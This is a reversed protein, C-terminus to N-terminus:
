DLVIKAKAVIDGVQKMSADVRARFEAAGSLVPPLGLAMFKSKVAPEEIITKSAAEIKAVVDAPMGAPGFLGFWGDLPIEPGGSEVITPLNPHMPDRAAGIVALVRVKGDTSQPLVLPDFMVHIRGAKMEMVGDASGKAPVHVIDTGTLAKFLEGILHGAAGIGSSTYNLRGPEKKALAILDAVSKVPLDGTVGVYNLTDVFKVIPTFDKTPHYPPPRKTISQVIMAGINTSLLTYGDAPASMVTKSGVIGAAGPRNSVIFRQNFIREYGEAFIRAPVDNTGGPNYPSVVTVPRAPWAGAAQAHARGLVAAAGLGGFAGLIRRRANPDAPAIAGDARDTSDPERVVSARTDLTGMSM